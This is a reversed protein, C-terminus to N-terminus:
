LKPRGSLLDTIFLVALLTSYKGLMQRMASIFSLFCALTGILDLIADSTHGLFLSIPACFRGSGTFLGLFGVYDIMIAVVNMFM